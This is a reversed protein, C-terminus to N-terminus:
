FQFYVFEAQQRLLVAWTAVVGTAIAWGITLRFRIAGRPREDTFGLAPRFSGMIEQTNPLAWIIFYLVALWLVSLGIPLATWIGDDPNPLAETGNLGIMAGLMHLASAVDNARFFVSGVLVCLYTVLVNGARRVMTRVRPEARGQVRQAAPGFNRWIHNVVLYAGHLLGFVLFQLGAGHWVGAITM